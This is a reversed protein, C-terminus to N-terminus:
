AKSRGALSPVNRQRLTVSSEKCLLGGNDPRPPRAIPGSKGRRNKSVIDNNISERNDTENKTPRVHYLWRWMEKQVGGEKCITVQVFFLRRLTLALIIITTTTIRMAASAGMNFIAWITIRHREGLPYGARKYSSSGQHSLFHITVSPHLPSDAM